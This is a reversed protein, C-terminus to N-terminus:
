GGIQKAMIYIVATGTGSTRTYGLRVAKFPLQNLNIMITDNASALTPTASLTLAVWNGANAPGNVADTPQYDLSAEVYFTGVANSTTVNVQYCVNDLFSILTPSTTFSAGLSKASELVVPALVDKRAM